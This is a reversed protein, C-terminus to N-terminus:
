CGHWVSVATSEGHDGMCLYQFSWLVLSSLSYKSSAMSLILQKLGFLMFHISLVFGGCFILVLDRAGPITPPAHQDLLFRRTIIM